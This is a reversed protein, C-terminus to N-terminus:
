KGAWRRFVKMSEAEAEGEGAQAATALGGALAITTRVQALHATCPACTLLHKELRVRDEPSLAHSLYETVLEVVEQCLLEIPDRTM